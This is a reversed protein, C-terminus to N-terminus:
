SATKNLSVILNVIISFIGIAATIVAVAVPFWNEVIWTRVPHRLRKLRDLGKPTIGRAVGDRIETGSISFYPFLFREEVLYNLMVIVQVMPSNDGTGSSYKDVLTQFAPTELRIEGVEYVAELIDREMTEKSWTAM